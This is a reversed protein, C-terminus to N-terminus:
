SPKSGEHIGGAIDATRWRNGGVFDRNFEIIVNFVPPPGAQATKRATKKRNGGDLVALLDPAISTKALINNTESTRKKRVM